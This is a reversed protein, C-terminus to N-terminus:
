RKAKGSCSSLNLNTIFFTSCTSARIRYIYIYIYACKHISLYFTAKWSCLSFRFRRFRTRSRTWRDNNNRAYQEKEVYRRRSLEVRRRFLVIRVFGNNSKQSESRRTLIARDCYEAVRPFSFNPGYFPPYGTARSNGVFLRFKASIEDSVDRTNRSVWRFPM